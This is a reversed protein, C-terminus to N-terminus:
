RGTETLMWCKPNEQSVDTWVEKPAHAQINSIPSFVKARMPCLCAECIGLKEPEKVTINVDKLAGLLSMIEDAASKVFHATMSHKTDNMPCVACVAARQEALDHSVPGVKGFMATYASIAARGGQAVGVVRSLLTKKQTVRAASEMVVFNMWGHSICRQANYEDVYIECEAEDLPLGLSQALSSNKRRFNMEFAVAERFSGKFPQKM